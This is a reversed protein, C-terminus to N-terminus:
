TLTVLSTVSSTARVCSDARLLGVVICQGAQEVAASALLLELAALPRCLQLALAIGQDQGMDVVELGDIVAQAM